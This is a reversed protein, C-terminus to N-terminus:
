LAGLGLINKESFHLKAGTRFADHGNKGEELLDQWKIPKFVKSFGHMKQERRIWFPLPEVGSKVDCDIKCHMSVFLDIQSTLDTISRSRKQSPRLFFFFSSIKCPCRTCLAHIKLVPRYSLQPVFEYQNFLWFFGVLIMFVVRRVPIFSTATHSKALLWM